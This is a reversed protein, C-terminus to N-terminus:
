VGPYLSTRLSHLAKGLFVVCHGGDPSSSLGRLRSARASVLLGDRRGLTLYLKMYFVTAALKRLFVSVECRARHCPQVYGSSNRIILFDTEPLGHQFIPARFLNCELAQLLVHDFIRLNCLTSCRNKFEYILLETSIYVFVWIIRSM